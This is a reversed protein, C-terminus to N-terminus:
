EFITPVYFKLRFRWSCTAEYKICSFSLEVIQSFSSTRFCDFKKHKTYVPIRTYLYLFFYSVVSRTYELTFSQMTM